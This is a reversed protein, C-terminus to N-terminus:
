FVVVVVLFFDVKIVFVPLSGSKCSLSPELTGSVNYSFSQEQFSPPPFVSYSTTVFAALTM